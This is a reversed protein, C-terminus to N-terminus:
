CAGGPSSEMSEEEVILGGPVEVEAFSKAGGGASIHGDRGVGAPKLRDGVIEIGNPLIFPQPEYITRIDQTLKESLCITTVGKFTKKLLWKKHRSGNAMEEIGRKHLHFVIRRRFLKILATILADRYFIKGTPVITFYVLSPRYTILIRCLRFIFGVMHLMKLSTIKGIDNLSQGFHLPLTKVEYRTRWGPNEVTYQNMM